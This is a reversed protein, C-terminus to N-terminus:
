RDAADSATEDAAADDRAIPERVRDELEGDFEEASWCRRIPRAPALRHPPDARRQRAAARQPAEVPDPPPEAHSQAPVHSHGNSTGNSVTELPSGREPEPKAPKARRRRSPQPRPQIEEPASQAPAPEVIQGPETNQPLRRVPAALSEFVNALREHCTFVLLQHGAAGFDRLVEAARVSRGDDFNVLVDDLVLPMATGRRAYFGVLALRLALFLQERTGRSLLEVALSQGNADDVLLTNEGLPTWVRQYRGGTLRELYGSAELLTEPQGKREYEEKIQQLVRLTIGLVQWREIAEALRQEVVALQLQKAGLRRDDVLSEMERGLRGRQELLEHLRQRATQSQTSEAHLPQPVGRLANGVDCINGSPVSTTKLSESLQPRNPDALLAALEATTCIGDCAAILERDLLDRRHSLEDVSARETAKRALEMEDAAGARELLSQQRRQLRVIAARHKARARGLKKLDLRIADRRVSRTSEEALERSLQRLQEAPSDSEPTLGAETFLPEIRSTLAALEREIRDRQDKAASWQQQLDAMGARGRIWQRLQKPSINKPLRAAALAAQWQEHAALLNERAQEAERRALPLHQEASQRKAELPLLEELAALAAEAAQLRAAPTGGSPLQKDLATREDAIQKTQSELMVLQEQCSELRLAASRELMWKTGAATGFAAIGLLSLLWGLTGTFSGPLLWGAFLLLVGVVFVGGLSALLWAPLIQRDLSAHAEEELDARHRTMREFRDDLQVRRRWQAVLQGAKELAPNLETLGRAALAAVLSQGQSAFEQEAEHVAAQAERATLVARRLEAAPARVGALRRPSLDAADEPSMEAPMGLQGRGASMRSELQGITQEAALLEKEVSAIWSENEALAQIRAGRRWLSERVTLGAAETKRQRRRSNIQRLRRRHRRIGGAIRQLRHLANGPFDALPGMAALQQDLGSREDWKPALAHALEVTRAHRDFREAETEAEAIAAALEDREAGLRWYQRTAGALDEIEECLKDREALLEAIRSPREDAALLRLRSADLERMVEALSVRDLGASLGYLLRAADTGDLTGLQQLEELGLAFVNQFIAEDVDCLLDRLQQAGQVTGDAATVAVEGLPADFRESRTIDFTGEFIGGAAVIGLWGGGQGGHVPPLYRRRRELSFGYLIARVFQLLTTKGAENPGYFVNLGPGLERVELGSWVGFGDISLDTFKM